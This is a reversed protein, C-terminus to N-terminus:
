MVKLDQLATRLAVCRRDAFKQDSFWAEMWESSIFNVVPYLIERHQPLLFYGIFCYIARSNWRAANLAPLKHWKIKAYNGTEQILLFCFMLMNCLLYSFIVKYYRFTCCLEYLFKFDARWGPNQDLSLNEFCTYNEQLQEYSSLLEPIFFYELKPITATITCLFEFRTKPNYKACSTLM